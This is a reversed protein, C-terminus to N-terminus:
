ERFRRPITINSRCPHVQLLTIQPMFFSLLLSVGKSAIEPGEESAVSWGPGFGLGIQCQSRRSIVSFSLCEQCGGQM